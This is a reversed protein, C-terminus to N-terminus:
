DTDLDWDMGVAATVEPKNCIASHKLDLGKAKAEGWGRLYEGPDHSGHRNIMM